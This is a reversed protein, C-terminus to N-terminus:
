FYVDLNIVWTSFLVTTTIILITIAFIFSMISASNGFDPYRLEAISAIFTSPFFLILMMQTGSYFFKSPWNM